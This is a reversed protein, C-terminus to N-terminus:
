VDNGRKHKRWRPHSIGYKKIKYNLARPSIGLEKAAEKQIWSHSDLAQLIRKKEYGSLSSGQEEARKNEWPLKPEVLTLNEPTIRESEELILAREIVNQLQRINGPWSYSLFMPITEVAFGQMRKKHSRAIKKLLFKALPEICDSRERLPPIHVRLVNLRYYLDERLEGAEVQKEPDKNTASIIRADAHITKNGGVREFAKEEIFRLLKSQLSFNLEGVEDLFVTGGDAQELRGIRKKDAGTFAGKEHGFLESDLITEPLNACNITVFPKDKRLSNYHVTSSLFSKGTGTEGTILITSDTRSFKALTSLVKKISPTEAIISQFDYVSDEQGRLYNIENRNRRDELAREIALSIKEEPCPKEIIDFVTTEKLFPSLDCEDKRILVLYCNPNNSHLRRVLELGSSVKKPLDLFVIDFENKRLLNEINRGDSWLILEHYSQTVNQITELLRNDDGIALIKAM